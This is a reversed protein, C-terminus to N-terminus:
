VNAVLEELCMMCKMEEEIDHFMQWWPNSSFGNWIEDQEGGEYLYKEDVVDLNILIEDFAGRIGVPVM